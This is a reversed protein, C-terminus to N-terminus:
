INKETKNALLVFVCPPRYGKLEVHITYIQHFIDPSKKFIGDVLWTNSVVLWTNALTLINKM